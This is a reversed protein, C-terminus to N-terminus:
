QLKRLLEEADRHVPVRQLLYRAFDKAKEIEGTDLYFNALTWFYERNLPDTEIVQMLAKEAKEWQRMKLFVLGQNYRVRSYEPM